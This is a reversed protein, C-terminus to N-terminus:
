DTSRIRPRIRTRATTVGNRVTGDPRHIVVESSQNQHIQCAVETAEQQTRTKRAAETGRTACQGSVRTPCWEKGRRVLRQNEFVGEGSRVTRAPRRTVNTSM